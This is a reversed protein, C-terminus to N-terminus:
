FLRLIRSLLMERKLIALSMLKKTPSLLRLAKEDRGMELLEWIWTRWLLLTDHQDEESLTKSM